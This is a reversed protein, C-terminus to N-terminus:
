TVGRGDHVVGHEDGAAGVAGGGQLLVAVGDVPDVLRVLVALRDAGDALADLAALRPQFSTRRASPSPTVLSRPTTV